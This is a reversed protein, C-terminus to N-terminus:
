RDSATRRHPQPLIGGPRPGVVLTSVWGAPTDAVLLLMGLILGAITLLVFGVGIYPAESLHMEIVPIHAVADSM